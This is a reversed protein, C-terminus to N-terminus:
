VLEGWLELHNDRYVRRQTKLTLMETLGAEALLSDVGARDAGTLSEAADQVKQLLYLRYPMVAVQIPMGRWEFEVQGVMRESKRDLGNTGAVLDPKSDLWQRTFGVSAKIEPLYDESIFKLLAVLTDPVGDDAFLEGSAGGYEGADHDTSNMREVRSAGVEGFGLQGTRKVSM